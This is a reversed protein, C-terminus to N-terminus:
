TPWVSRVPHRKLSRDSMQRGIREMADSFTPQLEEVDVYTKGRLVRRGDRAVWYHGGNRCAVRLMGQDISVVGAARRTAILGKVIADARASIDTEHAEPM